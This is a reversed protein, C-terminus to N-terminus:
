PTSCYIITYQLISHYVTIYQLKSNKVIVSNHERETITDINLPLRTLVGGNCGVILTDPSGTVIRLVCCQFLWEVVCVLHSILGPQRLRMGLGSKGEVM